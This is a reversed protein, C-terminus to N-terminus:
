PIDPPLTDGRDEEQLLDQLRPPLGPPFDPGPLNDLDDLMRLLAFDIDDLRGKAESITKLFELRAEAGLPLGLSRARAEAAITEILAKDAIDLQDYPQDPQYDGESVYEHSSM